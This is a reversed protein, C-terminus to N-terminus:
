TLGNQNLENVSVCLCVCVRASTHFSFFFVMWKHTNKNSNEKENKNGKADWICREYASLNYFSFFQLLNYCVYATFVM